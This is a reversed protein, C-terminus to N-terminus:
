HRLHWSADGRRKGIRRFGWRSLLRVRSKVRRSLPSLRHRGGSYVVVDCAPVFFLEEAPSPRLGPCSAAVGEVEAVDQAVEESLAALAQRSTPHPVPTWAAWIRSSPQVGAPTSREAPISRRARPRRGMACASASLSGTRSSERCATTAIIAWVSMGPVRRHQLIHGPDQAGGDQVSWPTRAM